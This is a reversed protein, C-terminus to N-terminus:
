VGGWLVESFQRAIDALITTERLFTVEQKLKAASTKAFNLQKIAVEKGHCAGRFVEAESGTGVRDEWNVEFRDIQMNELPTHMPAAAEAYGSLRSAASKADPTPAPTAKSAGPRPVKKYKATVKDPSRKSGTSCGQKSVIDRLVASSNISSKSDFASRRFEHEAPRCKTGETCRRPEYQTDPIDEGATCEDDLLSCDQEGDPMDSMMIAMQFWSLLPRPGLFLGQEFM